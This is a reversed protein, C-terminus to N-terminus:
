SMFFMNRLILNPHLDERGGAGAGRMRAFGCCCFGLAVALVMLLYGSYWLAIRLCRGKGEWFNDADTFIKELTGMIEVKLWNRFFGFTWRHGLGWASFDWDFIGCRVEDNVACIEFKM